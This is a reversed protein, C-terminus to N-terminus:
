DVDCRQGCVHTQPICGGICEEDSKCAAGTALPAACKGSVCRLGEACTGGVCAEDAAAAAGAVCKTGDCHQGSPCESAMHCAGGPATRPACRYHGCFGACEPHHVQEDERAYGALADVSSRCSQGDSKPPSCTGAQTPGSGLCFSGELCELSSRCVAGAKLNGRLLDACEAPLAPQTPGAWACGEYRKAQAADCAALAKADLSVAGSRLAASLTLVCQSLAIGPSAKGQCCAARRGAPVAYLTSCLQQALPVAAGAAYVPKVEEDQGAGLAEAAPAPKKCAFCLALLLAASPYRRM